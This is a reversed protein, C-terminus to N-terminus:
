ALNLKKELMHLQVFYLASVAGVLWVVLIGLLPLGFTDGINNGRAATIFFTSTIGLYVCVSIAINCLYYVGIGALIKGRKVIAGATTVSFYLVLTNLLFVLLAVILVLVAYEWFIIGLKSSLWKITLVTDNIDKFLQGETGIGLMILGSLCMVIGTMIEFIIGSFLKSNFVTSRKVPLTFTLYAEDSYCNKAYRMALLISSLIGFAFISVAALIVALVCFLSIVWYKAFVNRCVYDLCVGGLVSLAVSTIAGIIWLKLYHMFDHKLLKCFM